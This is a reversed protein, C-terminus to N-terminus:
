VYGDKAFKDVTYKKFNLEPLGIYGNTIGKGGAWMIGIEGVPVQEMNDDLIYVRNNPTPKGITVPKGTSHTTLTNVITM